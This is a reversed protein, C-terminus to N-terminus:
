EGNHVSVVETKRLIRDRWVYGPRLERVITGDAKSTDQVVEGAVHWEPDFGLALNEIRVVGEDRLVSELTRRVARFNGVLIKTQQDAQASRDQVSQFVRDFADLVPLLGTLLKRLHDIDDREQARTASQAETVSRILGRIDAEVEHLCQNITDM